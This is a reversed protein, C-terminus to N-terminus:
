LAIKEYLTLADEKSGNAYLYNAKAVMNELKSQEIPKQKHATSKEVSPEPALPAEKKSLKYAVLLAVLILLVAIIAAGGILLLKKKKADADESATNESSSTSNEVVEGEEIIIIDENNDAM